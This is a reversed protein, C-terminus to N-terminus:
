KRGYGCVGNQFERSGKDCFVDTNYLDCDEDHLLEALDVSIEKGCCPCRTFVDDDHIDMTVVVSDSIRRKVYFM